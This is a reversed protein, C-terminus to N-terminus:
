EGAAWTVVLEDRRGITEIRHALLEQLVELQAATVAQVRVTLADPGALLRCVGVDFTITADDGVREVSSVGPRGHGDSAHSHGGHDAHGLHDLHQVLQTLYRDARATPLRAEATPM